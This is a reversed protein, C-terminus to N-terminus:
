ELAKKEELLLKEKKLKEIVGETPTNNELIMEEKGFKLKKKLHNEGAAMDADKFCEDDKRKKLLLEKKKRRGEVISNGVDGISKEVKKNYCKDIKLFSNKSIWDKEAKKFKKREEKIYEREKKKKRLWEAL